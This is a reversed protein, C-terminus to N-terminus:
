IQEPVCIFYTTHCYHHDNCDDESECNDLCTEEGGLNVLTGDPGCPGFEITVETTENLQIEVEKTYEGTEDNTATLTHTGVSVRNFTFSGSSGAIQTSGDLSLVTGMAPQGEGDIVEGVLRGTEGHASPREPDGCGFHTVSFAICILGLIKFQHPIRVM